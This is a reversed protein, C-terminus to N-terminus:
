YKNNKIKSITAISVAHDKAIARVPRTDAKIEELEEIDTIKKINNRFVIYGNKGRKTEEAVPTYENDKLFERQEETYDLDKPLVYYREFFQKVTKDNKLTLKYLKEDSM